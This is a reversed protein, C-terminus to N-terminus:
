PMPAPNDSLSRLYLVVDAREEDGDLGTFSMTTGPIVGSPDAIFAAIENYGWTGGLERMAASYKFSDISGRKRGVIERLPPGELTKLQPDTSHCGKCLEGFVSKGHALDAKM